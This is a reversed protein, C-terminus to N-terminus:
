PKLILIFSSNSSSAVPVEEEVVCNINLKHVSTSPTITCTKSASSDDTSDEPAYHGPVQTHKLKEKTPPPTFHPFNENGVACGNSWGWNYTNGIIDFNEFTSKSKYINDLLANLRVNDERAVDRQSIM